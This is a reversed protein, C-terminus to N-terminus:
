PVVSLAVFRRRMQLRHWAAALGQWRPLPPRIEWEVEAMKHLAATGLRLCAPGQVTRQSGAPLFWDPLAGDCTLWTCGATTKLQLTHGRAIVLTRVPQGPQLTAANRTHPSRYLHLSKM